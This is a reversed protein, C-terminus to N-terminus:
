PYRDLDGALLNIKIAISAAKLRDDLLNNFPKAIFGQVGNDLTHQIVRLVSLPQSDEVGGDRLVAGWDPSREGEGVRVAERKEDGM